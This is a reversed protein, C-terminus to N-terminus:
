GHPRVGERQERSANGSVVHVEMADAHLKWDPMHCLREYRRQAAKVARDASKAHRVAVTHQLAKCPYGNSNLLYKFFSVRYEAM